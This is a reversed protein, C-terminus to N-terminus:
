QGGAQQELKEQWAALVYMLQQAPANLIGVVDQAPANLTALIMAQTEKLGPLKSM